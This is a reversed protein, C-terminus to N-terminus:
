WMRGLSVCAVAGALALGVFVVELGDFGAANEVLGLLLSVVATSTNLVSTVIGYGLATAGGEGTSIPNNAHTDESTDYPPTFTGYASNYPAPRDDSPPVVPSPKPPRPTIHNAQLVCRAIGSWLAATYLALALGLLCLPLVPSSLNFLLGLHVLALLVNALFLVSPPNGIWRPHDLLFGFLPLFLCSITHPISIGIYSLPSIAENPQSTDTYALSLSM